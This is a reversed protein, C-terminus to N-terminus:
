IQVTLKSEPQHFITHGHSSVFDAKINNKVIFDSVLRGAFLGYDVNAQQFQLADATELSQLRSKWEDNYPRTEADLIEYKWGGNEVNFRCFAIDLGDLSTGSMLGIVNYTQSPFNTM